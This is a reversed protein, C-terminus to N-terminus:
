LTPFKQNRGSILSTKSRLQLRSTMAWRRWRFKLCTLTRESSFCRRKTGVDSLGTFGIQVKSKLDRRFNFDHNELVLGLKSAVLNWDFVKGENLFSRSFLTRKNRADSLQHQLSKLLLLQFGHNERFMSMNRRLYLELRKWWLTLWFWYRQPFQDSWYFM